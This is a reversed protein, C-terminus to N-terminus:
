QPFFSRMSVPFIRAPSFYTRRSSRFFRAPPVHMPCSPKASIYVTFPAPPVHPAAIRRSYLLDTHSSPRPLRPLPFVAFKRQKDFPARRLPKLLVNRHAFAAFLVIVIRFEPPVASYLAMRAATAFLCPPLAGYQCFRDRFFYAAPLPFRTHPRCFLIASFLYFNVTKTSKEYM